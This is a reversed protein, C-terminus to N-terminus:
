HGAMELQAQRQLYGELEAFPMPRAYLFGQFADCQNRNLFAAQEASEVGEAVVKLNLHHAMSIIGQTIAADRPDSILEQVFSRDIKVKDIPLDKLYSLSSYGTGFDDLALGVGIKKLEHLLYIAREANKLLVSETIELELLSAPLGSSDLARRVTEIFNSRLFHVASINVSIAGRALGRDLLQRNHRCATDLVWQSIPIIQGTDEAVPIFRLPSILGREAHPWRLLAESGIVAGSHADIQPQYHLEFSMSEIAKQLENRLTMRESVEQNLHETYWQYNNRGHQKAQYMALDAQQILKMPQEIEGDSLTIGISATVHLELENLRYPRSISRILREAVLLVDEGHALDPLLVVFEDGGLRALTDGPRIQAGMRQAVEVLVKDGVAHGLTDNIPKFGDLDILMVALERSYRRAIQCGQLLRDELLSRNPLGTLVDHSANYALESEFRKRESIDNQVGVYHTVVGREDPVPAIYLDNWFPSGDKRFNRLVVHVERHEALSRRIEGIAPQRTEGGQLFRCNRGLVEEERYGTIREFAPNAYIIPQDAAQADVILVGNYSAELCRQLLAARNDSRGLRERASARELAYRISRGLLRGDFQGKVLYDSAGLELARADLESDDRGTLLILPQHMNRAIAHRVLELGSDTGLRNDILYLDHVGSDIACRGREFSDAWDLVYHLNGAEGLLDRIILFDDEDDEILLLRLPADPLTM